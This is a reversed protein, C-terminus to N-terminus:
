VAEDKDGDKVVIEKMTYQIGQCWFEGDKARQPYSM